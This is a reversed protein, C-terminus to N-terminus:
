AAEKQQTAPFLCNQEWEAYLALWKRLQGMLKEFETKKGSNSRINDAEIAMKSLQKLSPLERFTKHYHFPLEVWVKGKGPTPMSIVNAPQEETRQMEQSGAKPSQKSRKPGVVADRAKEFDKANPKRKGVSEKVRKAVRKQDDLPLDAITRAAAETPPISINGLQHPKTLNDVVQNAKILRSAHFRSFGWKEKCYAEFSRHTERYLKRSWITYLRAGVITFGQM